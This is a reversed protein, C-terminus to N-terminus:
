SVLPNSGALILQDASRTLAVYQVRREADEDQAIELLSRASLTLDILVREHERGKAQHITSLHVKIPLSLDAQRYFEIWRSPIEPKEGARLAQAYKSTWPSFGGIVDYPIMERNFARKAEDMRWRDRVLVLGGGDSEFERLDVNWFDGYKVITGMRPAPAFEKPVRKSVGGILALAKVHVRKPVRFSRGLVEHMGQHLDVFEIMGHPNAGNWEYIAQDDDGAIVVHTCGAILVEMVAWQLPSCDQAEDLYVVKHKNEYNPNAHARRIFRYLMDDFDLFGYTDKWHVYEKHFREFRAATGPAGFREYAENIDCMRNNAFSVVQLYDDGEQPDESGEESGKFPFGTMASFIDLKRKDVVSSRSVNMANFAMSHITSARCDAHDPLRSVAEAAASRTFSLYLASKSTAGAIEVLKHTKGTGPPGFIAKVKM